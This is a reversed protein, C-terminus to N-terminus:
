PVSVTTMNSPASEVNASDVAKVIYDYTQGSQVTSDAYATQSVQGSNVIQYLNTGTPARYVNFGVVPDSSAAPASWSLEVQHPAGAGNLSIVATPNSASNSNITLQGTASGVSAPAFQLTLNTSQGPNLTVPLTSGVISFGAGAVTAASVTVPATGTSSLTLIQTTTSSVVVSGFAISTANISLTPVAANLQLAFGM